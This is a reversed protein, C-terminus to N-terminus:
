LPVDPPSETGYHYLNGNKGYDFRRFTDHAANQAYAILAQYGQGAPYDKMFIDFRDWNNVEPTEGSIGEILYQCLTRGIPSDCFLHVAEEQGVKADILNYAGLSKILWQIERWRRATSDLNKSFPQSHSVKAIPGLAVFLNVKEAFYDPNLSAAVFM